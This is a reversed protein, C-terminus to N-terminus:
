KEKSYIDGHLYLLTAHFAVALIHMISLSVTSVIIMMVYASTPITNTDGFNVQGEVQSFYAETSLIGPLLPIVSMVFIIFAMLATVGLIKAVHRLGKAYAKRFTFALKHKKGEETNDFRLPRMMRCYYTYIIPTLFIALLVMMVVAIIAVTIPHEAMFQQIRPDEVVIDMALSIATYVLVLTLYPLSTLALQWVRKITSTAEEIGTLRRFLLFMRANAIVYTAWALLFVVISFTVESEDVDFKALMAVNLKTNIAMSLAMFLATVTYYPAMVKTIM